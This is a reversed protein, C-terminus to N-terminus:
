GNCWQFGGSLYISLYFINVFNINEVKQSLMQPCHFFPKFFFFFYRKFDKESKERESKLHKLKQWQQFASSDSAFPSLNLILNFCSGVWLPTSINIQFTLINSSKLFTRKDWVNLTICYIGSLHFLTLLTKMLLNDSIPM